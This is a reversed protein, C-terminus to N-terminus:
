CKEFKNSMKKELFEEISQTILLMKLSVVEVKVKEEWKRGALPRRDEHLGHEAHQHQLVHNTKFKIITWISDKSGWGAGFLKNIM